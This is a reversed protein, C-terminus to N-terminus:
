AALSRKRRRGFSALGILGTGFLALSSPEPVSALPASVVTLLASHDGPVSLDYSLDFRFGPGLSPLFANAFTGSITDARLFVFSDGLTPTYGLLLVNLDGALNATGAVDYIDFSGPSAIEVELIGGSRLVYNVSIKTVGPSAGAALTGGRQDLTGTFRGVNQLRGGTMVFRGGSVLRIEGGSQDFTGGELIVASGRGGITTNSRVIAGGDNRITLRGPRTSGVTLSTADFLSGAGDVVVAGSTVSGGLRAIGDVDVVGGGTIDLTGSSLLLTRTINWQSGPGDVLVTGRGGSAQGFIADLGTNVIGGATINMESQGADGLVLNRATTFTGGTMVDLRSGNTTGGGGDAIIATGATTTSGQVLVSALKSVTMTGVGGRGITLNGTVSLNSGSQSLTASSGSAGTSNAITANDRASVAAGNLIRLTGRAGGGVRVDRTFTGTSGAGNFTATGNGSNGLFLANGSLTGANAVSVAGASTDGVNVIGGFSARNAEIGLTGGNLSASGGNFFGDRLTLSGGLLTLGSSVSYRFSGLEITVRDSSAVRVSQSFENRGLLVSYRRSGVQFFVDDASGPVAAPFWNGPDHFAGGAADIWRISAASSPSTLWFSCAFLVLARPILTKCM